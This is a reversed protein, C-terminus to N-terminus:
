FKWLTMWEIWKGRRHQRKTFNRESMAYPRTHHLCVRSTCKLSCHVVSLDDNENDYENMKHRKRENTASAGIMFVRNEARGDNAIRKWKKKEKKWKMRKTTTTTMKLDHCNPVYNLLFRTFSLRLNLAFSRFFFSIFIMAPVDYFWRWKLFFIPGIWYRYSFTGVVRNGNANRKDKCKEERRWRNSKNLKETEKWQMM